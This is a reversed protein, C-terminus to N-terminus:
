ERKVLKCRDFVARLDNAGRFDANTGYAEMFVAEFLNADRMSVDSLVTKRVDANRLNAQDFKAERLGARYLRALPMDVYSFDAGVADVDMFTSVPMDAYRFDAKTVKSKLWCSRKAKLQQMRSESLDCEICGGAELNAGDLIARQISCLRFLTRKLVAGSLDAEDLICENFVSFEWSANTLQAGILKTNILSTALATAGSLDAGSLDSGIASLEELNAKSLNANRATTEAMQALTLDAESLDARSLDALALNSGSLDAGKLITGVLKAGSLIAGSLNAGTMDLGSFDRDTLDAGAMDCYPAPEDPESAMAAEVTLQDAQAVLTPDGSQVIADAIEQNIDEASVGRTPNEKQAKGLNKLTGKLAPILGSNVTKGSRLATGGSSAGGGGVGVRLSRKLKARTIMETEPDVPIQSLQSQVQQGQEGPMTQATLRASVMASASQDPPLADIEAALRGSKVYDEFSKLDTLPGTEVGFPDDAFARLASYYVDDPKPEGLPEQDVLAFPVDTLDDQEVPTLGRWTLYLLGEELDAFVTDLVMGVEVMREDSHMIFVRPRTGPLTVEFNAARPHLNTFSVAEDGRLYGELQQDPPAASMYTWDFDKAYFPANTEVYDGGYASGLKASRQPWSPNVPGFGAPQHHDGACCVADDVAEITPLLDCKAFGELSLHEADLPPAAHQSDECKYGKGVPNQEFDPGGFAHSWGLPMSTFPVIQSPEAGLFRTSWARSGVVWLTKSQAGVSMAVPCREMTKGGPTYCTGRLSFEANLKFDAFDGPYLLEGARESDEDRFIEAKLPGQGLVYAAEELLEKAEDLEEVGADLELDVLPQKSLMLAEAPSLDYKGRVICTMEPAPPRRSTVRYGFVLHSNNRIRIM